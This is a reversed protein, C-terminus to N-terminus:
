PTLAESISAATAGGGKRYNPDAAALLERTYSHQPRHYLAETEGREVVQGGQMVIIEKSVHRVVALDHSIFLYSLGLDRQLKAILNLIQAQISVDLASVPEDFIIISPNLALARAIGIRQRQGGSFESPFRNYHEPNLGVLEMLDRVRNKRDDGHAVKQIRFPDGIIAGVRRRPNLSGFPDQFVMQIRKRMEVWSQRDLDIISKGEIEVDGSTPPLLGAIIRALTSKGCGSEGVIGLTTGRPLELSVGKLVEVGGGKSFLSRAGYALRVDSVSVVIDSSKSAAASEEAAAAIAPARVAKNELWCLSQTNDDFRRLPPRQTRCIDMVSPCRPAFACAKQEILLSPPQGPISPLPGRSEHTPSSQLLGMTYPHSPTRLVANGPGLEMRNGAYMVMAHDAVSSLLELDHTVMIIATGFERRMNNLLSIIQAQVTVDLATTPEDAILLAPRLVIAMAIMVRQRMGGSFQHPYDNVRKDADHIGVRGLIDIAEALAAEHSTQRHTRIAEIIQQGITYFPHLSSLPDQSIMAIRNGRLQQMERPSLKLLDRDEFLIEGSILAGPLLGMIAQSLVSKGSGSEGAIGFLEEAEVSFSVDRAAHVHGDGTPIAINLNRVSLVTM